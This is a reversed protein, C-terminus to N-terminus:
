GKVQKGQRRKRTPYLTDGGPLSTVQSASFPSPVAGMRFRFTGRFPLVRNSASARGRTAFDDGDLDRILGALRETRLLEERCGQGLSRRLPENKTAHKPTEIVPVPDSHNIDPPEGV